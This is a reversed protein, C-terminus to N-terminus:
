SRSGACDMVSDGVDNEVTYIDGNKPDIYLCSNFLIDTKPGGIVRKPETRIANPPTNDLRNFVRISWTNHDQMLVENRRLDVAVYSYIPDLDRVYRLPPRATVQTAGAEQTAAYVPNEPLAAFLSTQSSAEVVNLKEPQWMCMEGSDPFQQISVLQASRPFHRLTAFGFIGIAIVMVTAVILTGVNSKRLRM